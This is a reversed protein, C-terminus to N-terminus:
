AREDTSNSPAEAREPGSTEMTLPQGDGEYYIIQADRGFSKETTSYIPVFVFLVLAVIAALAIIWPILRRLISKKRM